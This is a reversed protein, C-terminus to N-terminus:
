MWGSTPSWRDKTVLVDENFLLRQKHKKDKSFDTLAIRNEALTANAQWDNDFKIDNCANATCLMAMLVLKKVGNEPRKCSKWDVNIANFWQLRQSTRLNCEPTDLRQMATDDSRQVRSWWNVTQKKNALFTRCHTARTPVLGFSMKNTESRYKAKFSSSNYEAKTSIVIIFHSSLKKHVVAELMKQHTERSSRCGASCRSLDNKNGIWGEQNSRWTKRRETTKWLLQIQIEDRIKIEYPMISFLEREDPRRRFIKEHRGQCGKWHCWLGNPLAGRLDSRSVFSQVVADAYKTSHSVLPTNGHSHIRRVYGSAEM